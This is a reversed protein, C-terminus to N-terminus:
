REAMKKKLYTAITDNQAQEARDRATMGTADQLFPDAGAVEVLFKVLSANNRYVACILATRGDESQIDVDAGQSILYKVAENHQRCCAVLLATCGQDNTANINFHDSNILHRMTEVFSRRDDRHKSSYPVETAGNVAMILATTGASNKLNADASHKLLCKVVDAQHERAAFMLATCREGDALNCKAAGEEVLCKVVDLNETRSAAAILATRGECDQLNVNARARLLHQVVALQRHSAAAILASLGSDGERRDIPAHCRLADKVGQLDGMSAPAVLEKDECSTCAGM